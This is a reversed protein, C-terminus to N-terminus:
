LLSQKTYTLTVRANALDLQVMVPQTVYPNIATVTTTSSGYYNDTNTETVVDVPVIYFTCDDDTVEDKAMMDILYDRMGVFSYAKTTENYNAYFSTKGDTLKNQSFFDSLKSKQILLLTPPPTIGNDNDIEKAPITFSLLNIVGLNTINNKYRSIIERTPFRLQANYGSPAVILTQGQAVRDKLNQAMNLKINNNTIIEPTVAFYNGVYRLISDRGLSDKVTTHYYMRMTTQEIRSLRGSGYTTKVYMGKFVNKAFATPTSYNTPNAVYASFFERGLSVPLNVIIQRYKATKLSDADGMVTYSYIKKALPTPDYKGAVSFTSYIPTELENTLRYVGLGMPAISDGTYAGLNMVMFMRLSDIQAATIGATDIANAPMFQTVFDSSLTGFGPIDVSGLLQMTTRSLIPDADISHGTVTFSSDIVVELSDSVLSGGITSDDNCSVMPAMAMLTLAAAATCKM